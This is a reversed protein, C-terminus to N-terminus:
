CMHVFTVFPLMTYARNDDISICRLYPLLYLGPIWVILYWVQGLVGYPFTVLACSFMVYFHALLDAMTLQLVGMNLDHSERATQLNTINNSRIHLLCQM